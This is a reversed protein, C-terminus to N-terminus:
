IVSVTLEVMIVSTRTTRVPMVSEVAVVAVVIVVVAFVTAVWRACNALTWPPTSM